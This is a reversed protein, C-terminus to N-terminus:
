ISQEYPKDIDPHVASLIFMEQIENIRHIDPKRNHNLLRYLGDRRHDDPYTWVVGLTVYRSSSEDGDFGVVRHSVKGDCMIHTPMNYPIQDPPKFSELRSLAEDQLRRMRLEKIDLASVNHIELEGPNNVGTNESYGIVRIQTTGAPTDIHSSVDTPRNQIMAFGFAKEGKDIIDPSTGRKRLVGALKLPLSYRFARCAKGIDKMGFFEKLAQFLNPISFFNGAEFLDAMHELLPNKPLPIKIHPGDALVLEKSTIEVVGHKDMMECWPIGLYKNPSNFPQISRAIM